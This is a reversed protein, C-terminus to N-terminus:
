STLNLKGTAESISHTVTNKIGTISFRFVLCTNDMIM